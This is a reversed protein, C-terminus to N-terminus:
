RIRKYKVIESICSGDMIGSYELVGTNMIMESAPLLLWEQDRKANEHVISYNSLKPYVNIAEAVNILIMKSNGPFFKFKNLGSKYCGEYIGIGMAKWSIITTDIAIIAFTWDQDDEHYEIFNELDNEVVNYECHMGFRLATKKDESFSLFHTKIWGPDVHKAILDIIPTDFIMHGQGGNLLNTQLQYHHLTAKLNRINNLDEDGRYLISPIVGM